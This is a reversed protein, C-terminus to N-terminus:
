KQTTWKHILYKEELRKAEEDLINTVQHEGCGIAIDYSDLITPPGYRKLLRGYYDIDLVWTMDEDFLLPDKNEFALVSPSGISNTIAPGPIVGEYRALHPGKLQGDGWDHVCGTALWGGKFNEAINKLSDKHALYDDVYLLKIIEGTAKKIGANTNEAMRGSKTIIIEYDTFSQQEISSLCRTLFFQWNKMWHIPIVCSIRPRREIM